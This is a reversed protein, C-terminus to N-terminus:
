NGGQDGPTGGSENDAPDAVLAFLTTRDEPSVEIGFKELFNWMVAEPIYIHCSARCKRCATGDEPSWYVVPLGSGCQCSADEMETNPLRTFWRELPSLPDAWREADRRDPDAPKRSRSM